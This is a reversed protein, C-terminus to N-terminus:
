NLVNYGRGALCRRIVNRQDREGDVAGGAMGTVAGIGAAANRSGGGAAAILAGFVAGAIAGALAQDAAGAEQQAYQQCALLDASYTAHQEPRLDVIPSFQAGSNTTACGTLAIAAAILTNTTKM